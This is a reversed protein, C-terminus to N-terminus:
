QSKGIHELLLPKIALPHDCLTKAVGIEIFLDLRSELGLGSNQAPPTSIDEPSVSDNIVETYKRIKRPKYSTVTALVTFTIFWNGLIPHIAVFITLYTLHSAFTRHLHTGMQFM